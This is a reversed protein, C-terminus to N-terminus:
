TDFDRAHKRPQTGLHKAHERALRGQTSVRERVLTDQTSAHKRAKHAKRAQTGVHDRAKVVFLLFLNEM